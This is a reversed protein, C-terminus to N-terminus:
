ADVSGCDSNRPRSPKTPLTSHAVPPLLVPETLRESTGCAPARVPWRGGCLQQVPRARPGPRTARQLHWAPPRPAPRRLRAHNLVRPPEGLRCHFESTASSRPGSLSLERRLGATRGSNATRQEWGEAGLGAGVHRARQELPVEPYTLAARPTGSRVRSRARSSRRETGLTREPSRAAGPARAGPFVQARVDGPTRVSSFRLGFPPANWGAPAGFGQSFRSPVHSCDSQPERGSSRGAQCGRKRIERAAWLSGWPPWRARSVRSSTSDYRHPDWTDPTRESKM